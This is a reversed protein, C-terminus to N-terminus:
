AHRVQRDRNASTLRSEIFALFEAERDIEMRIKLWYVPLPTMLATSGECFNIADKETTLAAEAKAALFQRALRRMESARYAHHDGFAVRDAIEIGLGDLINWFSEPNGLGCFAAARSFPLERPPIQLGTVAEVWHDPVSRARFVPAHPNYRRLARGIDWTGPACDSRTIVFADARGLADLPERLRGLPFVDGGGFPSLADILVIDVQRDLRVHQFGDDLILVDTGFRERLRRGTEFRDAGIGLPAVASRLFIQPEDGTQATKAQAGPELILHKDVSHRGYGRTLIGPQRGARRMQEALYLVCPTKGTGGMTVNGVSIVAADLKRRRRLNRHRNWGAASSWIRALPWLFVLAPLTPRVQPCASQATERIVAMARETAGRNSEACALARRGIEAARARDTLLQDVAGALESASAIEVYAERERFEEAIQRFNEMHPGCIVPRSFFAPELINHGGRAALTGGMFVVDALPFLGSLEGISDLLLAGPLELPADLNSRRVFSIGAAALKAAASDFREPKRPVLILLLRPHKPALERFAAIVADDEDVDGTSAPPMTSAAIWVEAPRLSDILRRVPSAADAERPLFDYKLNGGIKVREASAGMALYRQRMSESQALVTDPWRLVEQFFWRLRRYRAETRDSIRGNIILLGCGARKAERFLNPWIETELIVVLAPQLARLVRRVAFVQDMPAYFVGNVTGALKDRATAHGALTGVSLFLPARPFEQRLRRALEMVAIVEGVSVAHLWIAGPVTQRFSAPLFGLRQSLSTFYASDRVSRFLFYGLM